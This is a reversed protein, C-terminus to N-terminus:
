RGGHQVARLVTEEEGEAYVVRQLDAARARVGAEDAHRHPVRVASANATPPLTPWRVRLWAPNWRRRRWRRRSDVLLRPDFPQPILYEPGFSGDDATPRASMAPRRARWNPLPSKVCALKMAENITTAGVDLAGRFMYPFCLANNVQNPYDSRGTAIICGTARRKALEPLIEPTPNALAL